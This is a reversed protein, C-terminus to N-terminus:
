RLKRGAVRLLMKVIVGAAALHLFGRRVRDSRDYSRALRRMCKLQRNTWEVRWRHSQNIAMVGSGKRTVNAVLDLSAILERVPRGDYAKDLEVSCWRPVPYERLQTFVLEFMKSDHRGAVDTALALPVGNGEVLVSWKWGRKGRDVPSRGAGEGGGPAQCICGDVSVVELDLGVVEAYAAICLEHLHEFLGLADWEDRRRRITRSTCGPREADAYPTGLALVECLAEFVTRDPTRPNHGGYPHTDRHEPLLPEFASWLAAVVSSPLSTM